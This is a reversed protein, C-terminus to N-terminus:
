ADAGVVGVTAAIETGWRWSKLPKGAALADLERLWIRRLLV